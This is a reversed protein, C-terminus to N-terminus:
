ASYQVITCFVEARITHCMPPIRIRWIRNGLVTKGAGLKLKWSSSSQLEKQSRIDHTGLEEYKFMFEGDKWYRSTCWSRSGLTELKNDKLKEREVQSTSEIVEKFDMAKEVFGKDEDKRSVLSLDPTCGSSNDLLKEPAHSSL